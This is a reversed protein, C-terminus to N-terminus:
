YDAYLQMDPHYVRRYLELNAQHSVLSLAGHTETDTQIGIGPTIGVVSHYALAEDGVMYGIVGRGGIPLDTVPEGRHIIQHAIALADIQEPAGEGTMAAMGIHCNRYAEPHQRYYLEVYSAIGAAMDDTVEYTLPTATEATDDGAYEPIWLTTEPFSIGDIQRYAGPPYNAAESVSTSTLFTLERM